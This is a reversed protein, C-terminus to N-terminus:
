EVGAIASRAYDVLQDVDMAKGEEMAAARIAPTVADLYPTVTAVGHKVWEIFSNQLGALVVAAEHLQGLQALLHPVTELITWQQHRSGSDTVMRLVDDMMAAVSRETRAGHLGARAKHLRAHAEFWRFGHRQALLEAECAATYGEEGLGAWTTNEAHVVTCFTLVYALGTERAWALQERAYEAGLRRDIRRYTGALQMRIWVDTIVNDPEVAHLAAISRELADLEVGDYLSAAAQVFPPLEGDAVEVAKIAWAMAEDSRGLAGLLGALTAAAITASVHDDAGDLELSRTLWDVLEFRHMAWAFVGVVGAITVAAGADGRACAEVNARRLNALETSTRYLYDVEASPEIRPADLLDAMSRCWAAYHAMHALTVTEKEDGSLRAWGDQRLPELMRYHRGREDHTTIVMSQAVLSDLVQWTDAGLGSVEEAAALCFPGVFVALRAFVEQERRDLLDYSWEITAAMTAQRGGRGTSSATIAGLRAALDTLSMTRGRAAVLEIALPIGELRECIDLITADDAPVPPPAGARVARDIFLAAADDGVTGSALPALRLVHEDPLDLVARSTALLRVDPAAGLVASALAAVEDLVHECNDIVLLMSRRSSYQVIAAELDANGHGTIDLVDAITAAVDGPGANALSCLWAGDRHREAVAAAAAIAIRTKGMGGFGAVTVLRHHALANAIEVLEGDRGILPSSAVPLNNPMADLTVLPPHDQRLGAATLQFIAEPETLDKLRHSGLHMLGQDPVLRATAASVLVQGGHAVSMLRAVRNVVPGFYDGDREVADGTHVGVRIEIPESTPWDAADIRLQCDLACRVASPAADFVAMMGDGMMKVVRGGTAAVAAGLLADHQELAHAMEDPENEWRRTSAVIDTFLFTATM